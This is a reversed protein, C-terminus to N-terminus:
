MMIAGSRFLSMPAAGVPSSGHDIRGRDDRAICPQRVIDLDSGERHDTGTDLDTCAAPDTRVDHDVALGRDTSVVLYKLEGRDPSRWLVLFVATPPRPQHDPCAIHKALEAGDVTPGRRIVPQCADAIVVQEHGVGVDGVIAREAIVDHHHIVGAEGTV